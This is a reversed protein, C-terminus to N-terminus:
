KAQIIFMIKLLVVTLYHLYSIQRNMLSQINAQDAKLFCM